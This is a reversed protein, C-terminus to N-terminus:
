AILSDFAQKDHIYDSEDFPTSALVLCTTNDERATVTVWTLAPVYLAQGLKSASMEFTHEGESSVLRAVISGSLAIILEQTQHHAHGGRVSERPMDQIFFARRVPFPTDRELDLAGLNGRSEVFAPFSILGPQTESM